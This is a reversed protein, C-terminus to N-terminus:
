ARRPYRNRLRSLEEGWMDVVDGLLPLFPLREGNRTRIIVHSSGEASFDYEVELDLDDAAPDGDEAGVVQFVDGVQVSELSGGSSVTYHVGNAYLHKYVTAVSQVHIFAGCQESLFRLYDTKSNYDATYGEHHRSYFSFVHDALQFAATAANFAKRSSHSEARFDEFNGIVFVYYFEDPEMGM